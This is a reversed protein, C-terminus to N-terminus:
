IRSAIHENSLEQEKNEVIELSDTDLEGVLEVWSEYDDGDWYDNTYNWVYEMLFIVTVMKDAGDKWDVAKFRRWLVEGIDPWLDDLVDKIGIMSFEYDIGNSYRGPGDGFATVDLVLLCDDTFKLGDVETRDGFNRGGYQFLPSSPLRFDKPDLGEVLEAVDEFWPFSHDSDDVVQYLELTGKEIFEATVSVLCKDRGSSM